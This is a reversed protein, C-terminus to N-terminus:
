HGAEQAVQSHGKEAVDRQQCDDILNRLVGNPAPSTVQNNVTPSVASSPKM